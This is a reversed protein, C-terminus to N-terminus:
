LSDHTRHFRKGCRQAILVIPGILVVEIIMAGINYHTLIGKAWQLLSADTSGAHHMGWFINFPSIFYANSVPWFLPQGYPPRGDPGFFDIVLHSIYSVFCLGFVPFLKRRKLRYMAAVGISIAIGFGVSHTVGQHYIAPAGSLFGPIFDLDPAIAMSVALLVRSKRDDPKFVNYVAYGALAHGIPTAM